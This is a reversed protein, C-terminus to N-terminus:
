GVNYIKYESCLIKFNKLTDNDSQTNEFRILCSNKLQANHLRKKIENELTYLYKYINEIGKIDDIKAGFYVSFYIDNEWGNTNSLTNRNIVIRIIPYDSPSINPEIGIKLTNIGDIGALMEKIEKIAEYINVDIM